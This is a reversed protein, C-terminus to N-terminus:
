EPCFRVSLCWLFLVDIYDKGVILYVFANHYEPVYYHLLVNLTM